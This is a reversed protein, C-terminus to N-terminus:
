KHKSKLRQIQIQLRSIAKLIVKVDKELKSVRQELPHSSPQSDSLVEEMEEYLVEQTEYEGDSEFIDHTSDLYDEQQPFTGPDPARNPLSPCYHMNAYHGRSVRFTAPGAPLQGQFGALVDVFYTNPAGSRYRKRLLASPEIGAELIPKPDAITVLRQGPNKYWAKSDLVIVEVEATASPPPETCQGPQIEAHVVRAISICAFLSLLLILSFHRM